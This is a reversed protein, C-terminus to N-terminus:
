APGTLHDAVLGAIPLASTAAPSPANLVHVTRPTKLVLFDEVMTGDARLAQARIGAEHPGLDDVGLSPCYRRVLALYAGKSLSNWQEALGSRLNARAFRWWGPFSLVDATDRADVAFRPYGERSWGQVANPGVTVGGEMMLTLHVGLFPLSPDPVPYILARVIDHRSEPLRYYEGRFPIIRVDTRVGAMRALRDAQIGGCAVLRRAAVPGAVEDSERLEVRVQGPTEILGIVECGVRVEGGLREVERALARCIQAYDVIGTSPSFLAGLGAVNPERRHLEAADIRELDLGNGAAREHLAEMRALEAEDTAVILKGTDRYAVGHEDCFERTARAGEVCLRAKLSGPAYYVGAHIVGSNHGSQHQALRQEKELVLVDSGPRRQLLTMATALGVIGGGIVVVDHANPM